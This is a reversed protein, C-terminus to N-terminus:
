NLTIKVAVTGSVEEGLVLPFFVDQLRVDNSFKLFVHMANEASVTEAVRIIQHNVDLDFVPFLSDLALNEPTSPKEFIPVVAPLMELFHVRLIFLQFCESAGRATEFGGRSKKEFNVDGFNVSSSSNLAVQACIFPELRLQRHRRVKSVNVDLLFNAGVTLLRHHFLINVQLGLEAFNASRKEEAGTQPALVFNFAFWLLLLAL